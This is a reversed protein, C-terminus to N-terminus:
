KTNGLNYTLWFCIEIGIILHPLSTSSMRPDTIIKNNKLLFIQKTGRQTQPPDLHQEHKPSEIKCNINEDGIKDQVRSKGAEIRAGGRTLDPRASMKQPQDLAWAQM